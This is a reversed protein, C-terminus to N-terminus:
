LERLVAVRDALPAHANYPEDGGLPNAIWLHATEPTAKAVVTSGADLRDLAGALGPPYRTMRVAALDAWAELEPDLTSAVRPALLSGVVPLVILSAAFTALATDGDRVHGLQQALMGELEIRSLTALLGSTVVLAAQQSEGGAVMVAAANLGPDDVVFLQPETIGNAVCLGDVLNYLRAQDTEDARVPALQGLFHQSFGRMSTFMWAALGGALILMVLGGLLPSKLLFGVLIGLCVAPVSLLVACFRALALMRERNRDKRGELVDPQPLSMPRMMPPGADLERPM